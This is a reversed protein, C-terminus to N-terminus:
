TENQARALSIDFLLLTPFSLQTVDLFKYRLFNPTLQIIKLRFINDRRHRRLKDTTVNNDFNILSHYSREAICQPLDSYFTTNM